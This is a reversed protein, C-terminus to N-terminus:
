VNLIVNSYRYKSKIDYPIYNYKGSSHFVSTILRYGTYYIKKNNDFM